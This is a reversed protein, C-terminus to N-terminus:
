SSQEDEQESDKKSKSWTVIHDALQLGAKVGQTISTMNSFPHSVKDILNQTIDITQNVRTLSKQVQRLILIVQIGTIFLLVTIVTIVVILFVTFPEM